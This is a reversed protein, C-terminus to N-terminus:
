RAIPASNDATTYASHLARRPADSGQRDTGTGDEFERSLFGATLVATHRALRTAVTVWPAPIM